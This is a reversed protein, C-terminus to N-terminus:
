KKIKISIIAIGAHEEGTALLLGLGPDPKDASM